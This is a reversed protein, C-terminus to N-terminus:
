GVTRWKSLSKEDRFIQANFSLCLGFYPQFTWVIIYYIGIKVHFPGKGKDIFMFYYINHVCFNRAPIKLKETM